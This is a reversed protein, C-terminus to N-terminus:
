VNEGNKSNKEPMRWRRLRLRFDVWYDIVGVASLLFFLQGVVIFYILFRLLSGIRYALFSVELVALGQFFYLGMLVNFVNLAIVAVWTQELKIFSLLFSFMTLWILLDPLRFELLRMQSAVKEFQLGLLTAMKRDLMLAFALSAIHLVILMSPLQGIIAEPSLGYESLTKGNSFQKALEAFGSTMMESIDLGLSEAWWTPGLIILFSGLAVSLTATWFNGLGREEFEQYVGINVWLSLLLFGFIMMGPHAALCAGSILIGSIWYKWSGFVNRLVRLLPTGLFIFLATM